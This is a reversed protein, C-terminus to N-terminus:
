NEKTSRTYVTDAGMEVLDKALANRKDTSMGAWQQEVFTDVSKDLADDHAKIRNMHDTKMEPDYEQCNHKDLDNRRQAWSTIPTGDIPSDYCCEPQATVLVPCSILQEALVGCACPQWRRHDALSFFRTFTHGHECRYEYLPM